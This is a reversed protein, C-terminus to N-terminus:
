KSTKRFLLKSRSINPRDPSSFDAINAANIRNTQWTLRTTDVTGAFHDTMNGEITAFPLEISLFELVIHVHLTRTDTNYTAYCPGLVYTSEKEQVMPVVVGGDAVNFPIEIFSHKM